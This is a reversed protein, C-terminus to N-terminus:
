KFMKHLMFMGRGQSLLLSPAEPSNSFLAAWLALLFLLCLFLFFSFCTDSIFSNGQITSFYSFCHGPEAIEGAAGLLWKGLGHLKLPGLQGPCDGRREEDNM